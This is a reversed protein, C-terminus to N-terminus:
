KLVQFGYGIGLYLSGQGVPTVISGPAHGLQDFMEYAISAFGLLGHPLHAHSAYIEGQDAAKKVVRSANSRKGLVRVVESGYAGIQK